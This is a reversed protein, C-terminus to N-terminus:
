KLFSNFIFLCFLLPYSDYFYLFILFFLFTHKKFISLSFLSFLTEKTGFISKKLFLRITLFFHYNAKIKSSNASKTNFNKTRKKKNTNKKLVLFVVLKHFSFFSLFFFSIWSLISIHLVLLFWNLKIHNSYPKIYRM